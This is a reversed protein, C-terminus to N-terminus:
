TYPRVDRPPIEYYIASPHRISMTTLCAPISVPFGGAPTPAAAARPAPGRRAIDGRVATDCRGNRPDSEFILPEGMGTGSGRSGTLRRRRRYLRQHLVRGATLRIWLDITRAARTLWRWCEASGDDAPCNVRRWTPTALRCARRRRPPMAPQRPPSGGASWWTGRTGTLGDIVLMTNQTNRRSAARRRGGGRRGGTRPQGGRHRGPRCGPLWSGRHVRVPHAGPGSPVPRPDLLRDGRGRTDVSADSDAPATNSIEWTPQSGPGPRGPRPLQHRDHGPRHQNGGTASGDQPLGRPPDPASLWAQVAESLWGWGGRWSGTWWRGRRAQGPCRGAADPRALWAGGCPHCGPWRCCGSLRPRHPPLATEGRRKWGAPGCRPAPQGACRASAPTGDRVGPWSVYRWRSPRARHGCTWPGAAM